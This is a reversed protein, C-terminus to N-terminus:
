LKRGCKPCYNIETINDTYYDDECEAWLNYTNDEKDFTICLSINRDWRNKYMLEDYDYIEKCFDCNNM